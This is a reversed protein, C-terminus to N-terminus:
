LIRKLDQALSQKIWTKDSIKVVQWAGIISNCIIVEDSQMLESLSINKVSVVLGLSPAAEIIRQRTVGAVGCANLDPTVLTGGFRMFINSMTCEIVHENVDLLVGDTIQSDQWEMRAMVNELRNLHKISALRPQHSLRLNCVRLTVGDSANQLPYNPMASKIVVRNPTAIAPPAYGRAGDGRTIIIKIVALEDVNGDVLLLQSIDSMLLEASPCVIGLVNCDAVLKQYNLPWIHPHNINFSSLNFVFTRFVGDGYAFGRDLPSLPENSGNILYTPTLSLMHPNYRYFINKAQYFCTSFEVIIVRTIVPHNSM